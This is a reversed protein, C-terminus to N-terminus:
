SERRLRKMFTELYDALDEVSEKSMGVPFKIEVDGENLPFVTRRLVTADATMSSTGGMHAAASHTEPMSIEPEPEAPNYGAGESAVFAKTDRYARIAADAASPIFKRTLLYARIAQESAKGDPFREDLEAFLEPYASARRLAEQYEPTGSAHALLAVALDSVHTEDARGELLGYKMLASLVPLSAGSLSKYGMHAAIVERSVRNQYDKGYVMKVRDMAEKLSIAPYEPSRARAM